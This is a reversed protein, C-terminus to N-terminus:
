WSEPYEAHTPLGGSPCAWPARSAWFIHESPSMAPATDLAGAPIVILKGTRSLRPVPSGCQRCFWKGFSKATPLEYRTIRDEGTLWRLHDPTTTLNTAHGTGTGKRCRSCHCHIMRQFPPRVEFTVAGCLCSGHVNSENMRGRKTHGVSGIV